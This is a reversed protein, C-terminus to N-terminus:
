LQEAGYWTRDQEGLHDDAITLAQHQERRQQAENSGPWLHFERLSPHAIEEIIHAIKERPIAHILYHFVGRIGEVTSRIPGIVNVVTRM